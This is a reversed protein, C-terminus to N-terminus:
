TRRPGGERHRPPGALPGDGPRPPGQGVPAAEAERMAQDFKVARETEKSSRWSSGSASRSWRPTSSSTPTPRRSSRSCPPPRTWSAWSSTTASRPPPRIPMAPRPGPRPLGPLDAHRRPARGRRVGGHDASTRRTQSTEAARLRTIYRLRLGEPLGDPHDQVAHALRELDAPAVSGPTTSPGPWTPSPRSTSATRATAITRSTSGTSSRGPANPSRTTRPWARRGPGPSGMGPSGPTRPDPRPRQAGRGAPRLVGRAGRPRSGGQDPRRGQPPLPAPAAVAARVLGIARGRGGASRALRRGASPGGREGRGPDADDPGTRLRPPGRGLDPQEHGPGRAPPAGRDAAAVARAALGASPPAPAAGPAPGGRFVGRQAAPGARAPHPARADPRADPGHRGVRSARPLRPRGPRRAAEAGVRRAPHGRHAPGAALLRHCRGLRQAAEACADAYASALGALRGNHGPDGSHLATRIQEVINHYDAM